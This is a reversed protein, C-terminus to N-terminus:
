RRKNERMGKVDGYPKGGLQATFGKMGVDSRVDKGLPNLSTRLPQSGIDIGLKQAVEKSITFEMPKMHTETKILAAYGSATKVIPIMENGSHSAFDLSPGGFDAGSASTFNTGVEKQAKQLESFSVKKVPQYNMESLLGILEERIVQRIKAETIRM